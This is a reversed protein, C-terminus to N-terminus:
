WDKEPPAGFADATEQPILINQQRQMENLLSEAEMLPMDNENEDNQSQPPPPESPTQPPEDNQSQPSPTPTAQPDSESQPSPTPTLTPTPEPNEGEASTPTPAPPQTATPILSLALELNLRADEDVRRLLVQQYAEAALAYQGQRFYVEGLGFYAEETLTEDATLLAQQLAREAREYQERELFVMGNNYYPVAEDPAAVQAAQYARVSTDLNGQQLLRNARNNEAQPNVGCAALTLVGVWLMWRRM